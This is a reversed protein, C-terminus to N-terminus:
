SGSPCVVSHPGTTTNRIATELAADSFKGSLMYEASLEHAHLIM